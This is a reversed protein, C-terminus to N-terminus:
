NGRTDIYPDESTLGWLWANGSSPVARTGTIELSFNAVRNNVASLGIAVTTPFVVGADAIAEQWMQVTDLLFQDDWMEDSDFRDLIYNWHPSSYRSRNNRTEPGFTNRPNPSAGWGWGHTFMHVEGTENAIIDSVVTSEVLRGQYFEVRLGIDSWNQIELMRNTENAPSGTAALYIITLPTGDPRMRYGDSDRQTYGAEDLIREAREPDFTNWSELTQDIWEMRRLGYFVSGNPVVLGNFLQGATVHDISLAIAQRVARSIYWEEEPQTVVGPIDPDFTGSRFALFWTTNHAELNTLFQVNDMYRFDETFQSQAFPSGIDYLGQQMAMPLMLADVLEVTIAELNPVGRWFNDNRVVHVSEGPVISDLIFPGNGLVNHRANEHEEMDAVAIGEWHHRPLPESWFGFQQITPPFDIMQIVLTMKDDSLQLGAIYDVEGAKFEEAGLVNSLNVGWRPGTYDPHSIVEYAFVLDDLTVPVGDHWFSEHMKVFTVTRADRDFYINALNQDNVPNFDMGAQVLPEFFLGRIDADLSSLWHVPCFIGPFTASTGIAWRLTGGEIIPNDNVVAQGFLSAMEELVAFGDAEVADRPPPTPAPTPSPTPAAPTQGPTAPPPTAVTENGGRDCAALVFVVAVLMLAAVLLKKVMTLVGGRETSPM